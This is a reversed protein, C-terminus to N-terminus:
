LEMNKEPYFAGNHPLPYAVYAEAYPVGCQIGRLRAKAKAFELYYKDTKALQSKYTEIAQHKIDFEQSIDIFTTPFSHLNHTELLYLKNVRWAAEKLITKHSAWEIGQLVLQFTMQHDPHYDTQSHTIITEPRIDQIYQSIQSQLSTNITFNDHELALTSSLGLIKGAEKLEQNRPPLGTLSLVHVPCSKAYKALTGGAWITEDDPHAVIALLSM